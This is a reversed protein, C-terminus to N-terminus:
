TISSMSYRLYRIGLTFQFAGVGKGLTLACVRYRLHRPICRIYHPEGTADKVFAHDDQVKLAYAKVMGGQRRCGCTHALLLDACGFVYAMACACMQIAALACWMHDGAGTMSGFGEGKRNVGHADHLRITYQRLRRAKEECGLRVRSAHVISFSGEADQLNLTICGEAPVKIM